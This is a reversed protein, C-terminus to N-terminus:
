LRVILQQGLFILMAVLSTLALGNQWKLQKRIRLNDELLAANDEAVQAVFRLHVARIDAVANAVWGPNKASSPLLAAEHDAVVRGTTEFSDKRHDDTSDVYSQMWELVDRTYAFGGSTDQPYDREKPPAGMGLSTFRAM